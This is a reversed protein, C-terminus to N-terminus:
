IHLRHLNVNASKKYLAVNGPHMSKLLMFRISAFLAGVPGVGEREAGRGLIKSLIRSLLTENLIQM